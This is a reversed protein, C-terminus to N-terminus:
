FLWITAIETIVEIRIVFDESMAVKRGIDKIIIVVNSLRTITMLKEALEACLSAKTILKQDSCYVLEFRCFYLSLPM